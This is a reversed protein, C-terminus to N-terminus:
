FSSISELILDEVIKKINLYTIREDNLRNIIDNYYFTTKFPFFHFQIKPYLLEFFTDNEIDTPDYFYLCIDPNKKVYAILDKEIDLIISNIVNITQNHTKIKEFFNQSFM